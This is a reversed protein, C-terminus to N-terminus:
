KINYLNRKIKIQMLMHFGEKIKNSAIENPRGTIVVLASSLNLLHFFCIIQYNLCQHYQTLYILYPHAYKLYFKLVFSYNM